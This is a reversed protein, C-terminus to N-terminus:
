RGIYIFGCRLEEGTEDGYCRGGGGAQVDM